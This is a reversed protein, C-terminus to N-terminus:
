KVKKINFFQTGFLEELANAIRAHFHPSGQGKVRDVYLTCVEKKDSLESITVKGCLIAGGTKTGGNLTFTSITGNGIDMKEVDFNLLYQQKKNDANFQSFPIMTCKKSRLVSNYKDCALKELYSIDFGEFDEPNQMKNEIISCKRDKIGADEYGYEVIEANDYNFQFYVVADKNFLMSYDGNVFVVNKPYGDIYNLVSPSLYKTEPENTTITQKPVQAIPKATNEPNAIPQATNELNNGFVKVKGSSLVISAIKQIGLVFTPGELDDAEKYKVETESIELVKADIKKEDRTIIIDQASVFLTSSAVLLTFFLRKM